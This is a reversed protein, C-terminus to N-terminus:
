GQEKGRIYTNFVERLNDGTFKLQDAEKSEWVYHEEGQLKKILEGTQYVRIGYVWNCMILISAMHAGENSAGCMDEVLNIEYDRFYGDFVSTMLCGDTVFGGIIVSTVGMGKLMLDLNTQYFGSWRYKDIVIDEKEPRVKDIIEVAETNSRYFVPKSNNDLPERLSLGKSDDRNIQRTYVIPIGRSRCIDILIKANEVVQEMNDISFGDEKQLDILILASKELNM